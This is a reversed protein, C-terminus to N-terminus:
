NDNWQENHQCGEGDVLTSASWLLVHRVVQQGFTLCTDPGHYGSFLLISGHLFHPDGSETNERWRGIGVCRGSRMAYVQDVEKHMQTQTWLCARRVLVGGDEHLASGSGLSM